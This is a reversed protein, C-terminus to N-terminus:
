VPPAKSELPHYSDRRSKARVLVAIVAVLAAATTLQLGRVGYTQIRQQQQVVAQSRQKQEEEQRFSSWHQMMNCSSVLLNLKTKDTMQNMQSDLESLCLKDSLGSCTGTEADPFEQRVHSAQQFASSMVMKEFVLRDKDSMATVEDALAGLCATDSLGQCSFSHRAPFVPRRAHARASTRQARAASRLPLAGTRM